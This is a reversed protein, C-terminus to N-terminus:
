AGRVLLTHPVLCLPSPLSLPLALSLVKPLPSVQACRLSGEGQPEQGRMRTGRMNALPLSRLKAFRFTRAWNFYVNPNFILIM